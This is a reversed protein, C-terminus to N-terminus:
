GPIDITAVSSFTEDLIVLTVPGRGLEFAVQGANSQGAGITKMALQNDLQAGITMMTAEGGGGPRVMTLFPGTTVTGSVGEFSLDVVLYSSGERPPLLGNDVWSSRTVTVTAKGAGSTFGVQQEIGGGTVDSSNTPQPQQPTRVVSPEGTPAGTPATSPTAQVTPTASAQPATVAPLLQWALLGLIALVVVGGAILLGRGGGRRGGGPAPALSPPGWPQQSPPAWPGHGPPTWQDQGSPASPGPPAASGFQQTPPCQPTPGYQQTPPYQQAPTGFQQTPPYQQAGFRQTPEHDPSSQGQQDPRTGPSPTQPSPASGQPGDFDPQGPGPQGLGSSANM